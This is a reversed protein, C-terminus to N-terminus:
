PRGQRHVGARPRPLGARHAAAYHSALMDEGWDNAMTIGVCYRM